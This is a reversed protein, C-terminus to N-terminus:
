GAIRGKGFGEQMRALNDTIIGWHCGVEEVVKQFVRYRTLREESCDELLGWTNLSLGKRQYYEFDELRVTTIEPHLYGLTGGTQRSFEKVVEEVYFPTFPLVEFEMGVCGDYIKELITKESFLMGYRAQPLRRGMEIVNQLAFSSFLLQSADFGTTHICEEVCMALRGGDWEQGSRQVGKLEINLVFDRSSLNGSSLGGKVWVLVEELLALPRPNVRGALCCVVEGWLLQNLVKSPKKEMFFHDQPMVNHAVCVVEDATVVVDMEVFDAGAEFAQIISELSNEPVERQDKVFFDHDTCGLGRHGGLRMPM